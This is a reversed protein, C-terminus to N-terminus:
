LLYISWNASRDSLLPCQVLSFLIFFIYKFHVFPDLDFSLTHTYIAGALSRRPPRVGWHRTIASTGIRKAFAFRGLILKYICRFTFTRGNLM